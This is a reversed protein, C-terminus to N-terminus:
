ASQPISQRFVTIHLLAITLLLIIGSLLLSLSLEDAVETFQTTFRPVVVGALLVGFVGSLAAITWRERPVITLLGVGVLIVGVAIGLIPDLLIGLMYTTFTIATAAILLLDFVLEKVPQSM